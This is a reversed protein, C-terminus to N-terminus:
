TRECYMGVELTAVSITGTLYECWYVTNRSGSWDLGITHELGTLPLTVDVYSPTDFSIRKIDVSRAFLLYKDIAVSFLMLLLM